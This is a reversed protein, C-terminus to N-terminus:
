KKSVKEFWKELAKFAALINGSKVVFFVPKGKKWRTEFKDIRNTGEKLHIQMFFEDNDVFPKTREKPKKTTPVTRKPVAKM